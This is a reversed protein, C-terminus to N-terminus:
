PVHRSIRGASRGDAHPPARRVAHVVFREPASGVYGFPYCTILTLSSREGPALVSLDDGDVIRAGTVSYDFTGRLTVLRIADSIRVDKLPRFFTDRHGAIASNGLEWPWPTDPLHGAALQLTKDEDGEVVMVSLGVRPIELRGVMGGKRPIWTTRPFSGADLDRDLADALTAQGWTARLELVGFWALCTLGVALAIAEVNRLIASCLPARM